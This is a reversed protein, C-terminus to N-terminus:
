CKRRKSDIRREEEKKNEVRAKDERGEILYSLKSHKSFM